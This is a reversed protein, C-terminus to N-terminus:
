VNPVVGFHVVDLDRRNAIDVLRDEILADVVYLFQTLLPGRGEGVQPLQQFVVM